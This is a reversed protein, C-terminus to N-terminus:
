CFISSVKLIKRPNEFSFVKAKDVLLGSGLSVKSDFIKRKHLPGCMKPFLDTWICKGTHGQGELQASKQWPNTVVMVATWLGSCDNLCNGFHLPERGVQSFLGWGGTGFTFTLECTVFQSDTSWCPCASDACGEAARVVDRPRSCECLSWLSLTGLPEM